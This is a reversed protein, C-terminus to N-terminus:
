SGPYWLPGSTFFGIFTLIAIFWLFYGILDGVIDQFKEM